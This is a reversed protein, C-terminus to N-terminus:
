LLLGELEKDDAPKVDMYYKQQEMYHGYRVKISELGSGKSYRAAIRAAMDVADDTCKGRLVVVSGSYEAADFILDGERLLRKIPELESSQRTSIAKADPSVRFHRGLKLINIDNIDFDKNHSYLDRLRRSFNPETLCCGGAPSPYDKIGWRDALEMQTKRSKGQIDLLRERDVLGKQEMETPALNKACLPRLIRGSYGSERKVIDLSQRNQSMPRQNLVEGTILFDYGEEEMLKGACNLMLAHCDICPNMNKGYGYKPNKVIELHKETFDIIKLPIGTEKTMRVANEPGFFASKFCVATVEIGQDHVLKAALISDLGGSVLALAKTMHIGGSQIIKEIYCKIIKGFVFHRGIRNYSWKENIALM